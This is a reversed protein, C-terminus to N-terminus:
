GHVNFMANEMGWKSGGGPCFKRPKPPRERLRGFKSKRGTQFKTLKKQLFMFFFVGDQKESGRLSVNRTESKEM